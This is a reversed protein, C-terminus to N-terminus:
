GATEIKIISAASIQPDEAGIVHLRSFGPKNGPGLYIVQAGKILGRAELDIRKKRHKLPLEIGDCILPEGPLLRMRRRAMPPASRRPDAPDPDCQALGAGALAGDARAEVRERWSCASMANRGGGRGDARFREFGLDPDALAHALDLIPNDEAQRHIRHLVLRRSDALKDFVM